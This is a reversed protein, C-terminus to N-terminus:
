PVHVLLAPDPATTELDVFPVGLHDALANALQAETLAGQEVLIQGLRQRTEQQCQLAAEIEDLSVLGSAVLVDGLRGTRTAPPRAGAWDPAEAVDTGAVPAIPAAVAGTAPARLTRLTTAIAELRAEVAAADENLTTTGQM